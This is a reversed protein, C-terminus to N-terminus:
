KWVRDDCHEWMFRAIYLAIDRCLLRSRKASVLLMAITRRCNQVLPALVSSEFHFMRKMSTTSRSHWHHRMRCNAKEIFITMFCKTVDDCVTQRSMSVEYAYAALEFPTFQEGHDYHPDAGHDLLLHLIQICNPDMPQSVSQCIAKLPTRPYFAMSCYYNPNANKSLLWEVCKLSRADCAIQLLTAWTLPQLITDVPRDGMLTKLLEVDDQHVAAHCDNRNDM